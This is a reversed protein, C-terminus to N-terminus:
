KQVWHLGCETKESDAWRGSRLDEGEGVMRTCPECGISRYGKELLPNSPLDHEDVYDNVQEATWRALPAIKAVEFRGDRAVVPTEARTPSQERRLGTAWARYGKLAREMPEVKRMHCCSDPDFNYMREGMRAAQQTISLQPHMVELPLEYRRMVEERFEGTQQFLFGTDLTFVRIRDSIRSVMDMLVIGEVNGFSVSLTLNEGYTDVAWELVEQPAAGELSRSVEEFGEESIPEGEIGEISGPRAAAEFSM